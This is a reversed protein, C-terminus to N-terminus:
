RMLEFEGKFGVAAAAGFGLTGFVTAIVNGAQDYFRITATARGDLVSGAAYWFRSVNTRLSDFSRGDHLIMEANFNLYGAGPGWADGSGFYNIGNVTARLELITYVAVAFIKIHVPVRQDGKMENSWAGFSSAQATSNAESQFETELDPLTQVDAGNNTEKLWKEFAASGGNQEIKKLIQLARQAAEERTDGLNALLDIEPAPTTESM